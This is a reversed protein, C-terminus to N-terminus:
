LTRWGRMISYAIVPVLLVLGLVCWYLGLAILIGAWVAIVAIPSLLYLRRALMM